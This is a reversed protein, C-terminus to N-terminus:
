GTDDETRTLASSRTARRGDVTETELVVVARMNFPLFRDANQSSRRASACSTTPADDEPEPEVFLRRREARLPTRARHRHRLMYDADDDSTGMAALLAADATDLTRSGRDDPDDRTGSTTAHLLRERWFEKIRRGLGHAAQGLSTCGPM